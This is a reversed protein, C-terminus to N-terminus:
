AAVSPLEVNAQESGTSEVQWLVSVLNNVVQQVALVKVVDVLFLDVSYHDQDKRLVHM